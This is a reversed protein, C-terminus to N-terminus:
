SRFIVPNQADKCQPVQRGLRLDGEGRTKHLSSSMLVSFLLCIAWPLKGPAAGKSKLPATRSPHGMKATKALTPEKKEGAGGWDNSYSSLIIIRKVENWNRTYKGHKQMQSSFLCTTGQGGLESALNRGV